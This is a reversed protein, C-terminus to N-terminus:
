TNLNLEYLVQLGEVQNHHTQLAQINFMVNKLKSTLRLPPILNIFM